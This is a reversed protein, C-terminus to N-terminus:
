SFASWIRNEEPLIRHRPNDVQLQLHNNHSKPLIPFSKPSSLHIKLKNQKDPTHNVQHTLPPTDVRVGASNQNITRSLILVPYYNQHIKWQTKSHYRLDIYQTSNSFCFYPFCLTNQFFRLFCELHKWFRNLFHLQSLSYTTTKRVPFVSCQLLNITSM